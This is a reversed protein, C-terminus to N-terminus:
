ASQVDRQWRKYHKWCKGRAVANENCLPDGDCRSRASEKTTDTVLGLYHDGIRNHRALLDCADKLSKEWAAYDAAVRERALMAGETPTHAGDGGEGGGPYGDPTLACIADWVLSARAKATTAQLELLHALDAIYRRTM